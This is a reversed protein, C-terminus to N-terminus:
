RPVQENIAGGLDVSYWPSGRTRDDFQAGKHRMVVRAHHCPKPCPPGPQGANCRAYLPRSGDPPLALVMVSM